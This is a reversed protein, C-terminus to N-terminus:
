YAPHGLSEWGSWGWGSYTDWSGEAHWINLDASQAFVDLTGLTSSASVPSVSASVSGGSSISNTFSGGLSYWNSWGGYINDRCWLASDGGLACVTLSDYAWESVTPNSIVYGGLLSWGSWASGTLTNVYLSNNGGVGFVMVQSSNLPQATVHQYPLYGGLSQWSGWGSGNWNLAHLSDDTGLALVELDNAGRSTVIPAISSAYGSFIPLLESQWTAGGNTSWEHLLNAFLFSRFYRTMSWTFVDLRGSGATAGPGSVIFTANPLPLSQWSNVWNPFNGAGTDQELAGNREAFITLSNQGWTVFAPTTGGDAAGLDEWASWGAGNSGAGYIEQPYTAIAKMAFVDLNDPGGSVAATLVPAPGSGSMPQMAAAQAPAGGTVSLSAVGMVSMVAIALALLSGVSARREHPARLPRSVTTFM